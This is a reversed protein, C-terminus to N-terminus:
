VGAEYLGITLYYAVNSHDLCLWMIWSWLMANVFSQRIKPSFRYMWGMYKAQGKALMQAADSDTKNKKWKYMMYKNIAWQLGRNFYSLLHMHLRVIEKGCFILLLVAFIPFGFADQVATDGLPIDFFYNTFPKWLILSIYSALMFLGKIGLMVGAIYTSRAIVDDMDKSCAERFNRLEVFRNIFYGHQNHESTDGIIGM